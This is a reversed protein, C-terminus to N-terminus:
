LSIVEVHKKSDILLEKVFKSPREKNVFLYVYNKSRTLAVYFLRREEYISNDKAKIYKFVENNKMKNPFGLYSDELNIILVNDFELGKSKHVTMYKIQKDKYEIEDNKIIVEKDNYKYIDKKNRMLITINSTVTDLFRKLIISDNNNYYIIKIPKNLHKDSKISKRIQFINKLIFKNSVKTLELSNRYTHNLKVIKSYGFYKKFRLFMKIDSGSFAYISQFDDGVAFVKSNCIDKITKILMYREYSIDQYEDIIIYKYYRKLGKTKLVEICKNIMDNFDLLGQSYLENQYLIYIANIVKLLINKNSIKSLNNSNKQKYLNIFQSIVKKYYDLNYKYFVEDIIYELIDGSIGYYINNDDLIELALKHFTYIDVPYKIREKLEEVANSTFSLCLIDKESIHKEEILYSIKNIITRTKGSGAGSILLINDDLLIAKNQYYDLPLKNINNEIFLKNSKYIKYKLIINYFINFNSKNNLYYNHDLYINKMYMKNVRQVTLVM